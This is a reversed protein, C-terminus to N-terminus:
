AINMLDATGSLDSACIRVDFSILDVTGLETSGGGGAALVPLPTGGM